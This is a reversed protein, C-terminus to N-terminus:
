GVCSHLNNSYFEFGPIVILCFKDFSPRKVQRPYNVGDHYACPNKLLKYAAEFEKVEVLDFIKQSPNKDEEEAPPVEPTVEPTDEKAPTEVGYTNLSEIFESLESSRDKKYMRRDDAVIQSAVAIAQDKQCLPCFDYGNRDSIRDRGIRLPVQGHGCPCEGTLHARTELNDRFWSPTHHVLRGM